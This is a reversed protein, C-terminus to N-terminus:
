MRRKRRMRLYINFPTIYVLALTILHTVMYNKGADPTFLASRIM